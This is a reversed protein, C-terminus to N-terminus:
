FGGVCYRISAVVMLLLMLVMMIRSMSQQREPSLQVPNKSTIFLVAVIALALVVLITVIPPM